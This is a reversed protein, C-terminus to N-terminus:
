FCAVIFWVFHFLNDIGLWACDLWYIGVDFSQVGKKLDPILNAVIIFDFILKLM